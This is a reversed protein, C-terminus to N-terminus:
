NGVVVLVFSQVCLSFTIKGFPFHFFDLQLLQDRWRWIMNAYLWGFFGPFLFLEYLFWNWVRTLGNFHLTWNALCWSMYYLRARADWEPSLSNRSIAIQRGSFVSFGVSFEKKNFMHGNYPYSADKIPIPSTIIRPHPKVFHSLFVAKFFLELSNLWKLESIM